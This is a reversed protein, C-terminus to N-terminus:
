AVVGLVALQDNVWGLRRGNQHDELAEGLQARDRFQYQRELGLANGALPFLGSSDGKGLRRETCASM